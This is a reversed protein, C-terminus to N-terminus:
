AIYEKDIYTVSYKNEKQQMKKKQLFLKYARKQQKSM